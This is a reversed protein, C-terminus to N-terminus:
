HSEPAIKVFLHVLMKIEQLIQNIICCHVGNKSLPGQDVSFVALRPLQGRLPFVQVWSRCMWFGSGTRKIVAHSVHMGFLRCQGRSRNHEEPSIKTWGDTHSINSHKAIGMKSRVFNLKIESDAKAPTNARTTGKGKIAMRLNNPHCLQSKWEEIQDRIWKNRPVCSQRVLRKRFEVNLNWTGVYPQIQTFM